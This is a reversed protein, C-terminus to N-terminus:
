AAILEPTDPQAAQRAREHAAAELVPNTDWAFGSYGEAAMAGALKVVVKYPLHSREADEIRELSDGSGDFNITLTNGAM